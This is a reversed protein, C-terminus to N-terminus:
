LTNAELNVPAKSFITDLKGDILFVKNDKPKKNTLFQIVFDTPFTEPAVFTSTLENDEIWGDKVGNPKSLTVTYTNPGDKMALEGPIVIEATENFKLNGKWNYISKHFGDTGYSINVSHLNESGLNRMVFRPNFSAPNLRSFQQQDSPVIIKDVAVDVKKSPPSYHFLYASIDENAQINGTATYPEM